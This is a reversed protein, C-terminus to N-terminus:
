PKQCNPCFYTSRGGQEVKKIKTGCVNCPRWSRGHVQMLDYKSTLGDERGLYMVYEEAAGMDIARKLVPAINKYLAKVKDEEITKAPVQPSVRAAFLIEDAYANGVGAMRAQEMFVNKIPGSTKQVAEAFDKASITLADPGQKAVAPYDDVLGIPMFAISRAAVFRVEFNQEDEFRIHLLPDFPEPQEGRYM